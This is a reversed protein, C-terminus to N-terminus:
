ACCWGAFPHRRLEQKHRRPHAARGSIQSGEGGPYHFGHITKCPDGSLGGVSAGYRAPPLRKRRGAMDNAGDHNM